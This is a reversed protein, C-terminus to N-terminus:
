HIMARIRCYIYILGYQSLYFISHIHLLLSFCLGEKCFFRLHHAQGDQKWATHSRLSGPNITFHPLGLSTQLETLLWAGTGSVQGQCIALCSCGRRVVVCTSPTDRVVPRLTEAMHIEDRKNVVEIKEAERAIHTLLGIPQPRPAAWLCFLLYQFLPVPHRLPRHSWQNSSVASNLLSIVYALHNGLLQHPTSRYPM